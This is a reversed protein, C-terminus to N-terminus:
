KTGVYGAELLEQLNILFWSERRVPRPAASGAGDAPHAAATIFTTIDGNSVM